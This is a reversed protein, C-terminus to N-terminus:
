AHLRLRWTTLAVSKEGAGSAVFDAGSDQLFAPAENQLSFM